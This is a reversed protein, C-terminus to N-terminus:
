YCHYQYTLRPSNHTPHPPPPFNIHPPNHLKSGNIGHDTAGVHLSTFIKVSPGHLFPPPFSSSYFFQYTSAQAIKSWKDMSGDNWCRHRDRFILLPGISWREWVFVQGLFLAIISYDTSGDSGSRYRDSSSPLSEFIWQDM